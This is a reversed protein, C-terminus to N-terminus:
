KYSKCIDYSRKYPYKMYLLKVTITLFPWFRLFPRFKLLTDPSVCNDYSWGSDFYEHFLNKELFIYKKNSCINGYLTSILCFKHYHDQFSPALILLKNTEFVGKARHLLPIWLSVALHSPLINEPLDLTQLNLIETSAAGVWVYM